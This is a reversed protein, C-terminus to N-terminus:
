RRRFHALEHRLEAEAGDFLHDTAGVAELRLAGDGVPLGLAEVEGLDEVRGVDPGFDAAEAGDLLVVAEVLGEVERGEEAERLGGDLLALLDDGLQRDRVDVADGARDGAVFNGLLVARLAEGLVGDAETELARAPWLKPAKTVRPMVSEM